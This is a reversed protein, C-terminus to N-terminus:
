GALDWAAIAAIATALIASAACWLCVAGIVFVELYTLYGSYLTGSLALGFLALPVLIPTAEGSLARWTGLGALALYLLLGLLAVPVGAVMAFRSSQVQSCGGEGACFLAAGSYHVTALYGSVAVGLSSAAVLSWRRRTVGDGLGVRTV